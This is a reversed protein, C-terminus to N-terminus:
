SGAAVAAQQPAQEAKESEPQVTLFALAQELSTVVSDACSTGLREQIVEAPTESGWIGLLIRVGPHQARIRRCMSRAHIIVFPPLASLVVFEDGDRVESRVEARGDCQRLMQALIGAVLEDAADRAPVCVISAHRVQSQSCRYREAALDVVERAMDYVANARADTLRGDHRDQEAISLAPVVLKDCVKALSDNKLSSDILHAVEDDDEALLRQYLHVEESLAPEDGLLVYLFGLPPLHRGMVVLCVTLPTSLVLGIPGWLLTWFAASLLYAVSSIGTRNAYLWPEIITSITLEIGAYLAFTELPKHWGHFAALSMILPCAGAILTGVYPIFRLILVLVGWLPAYPVGMLWLGFFLVIGFSGNVSFQSLLYRSVREAAEDFTSTVVVLRGEGFLRLIRNRLQERNLLIFLTLVFVAFSEALLEAVSAGAFGLSSMLTSGGVVKVPVPKDSPQGASAPSSTFDQKLEDFVRQLNQIGAGPAGRIEHVESSINAQYKPWDGLIGSFESILLWGLAAALSMGVILVAGVALPRPLRLRELWVLPTTLLFSFLVSFALPVLLERGFYLAAIVAATTILAQLWKGSVRQNATTTSAM